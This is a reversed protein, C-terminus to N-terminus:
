CQLKGDILPWQFQCRSALADDHTVIVLTARHERNLEFLLDIVALGTKKDLNGTPEDAFLVAPTIAFARAIAVRQQEGGSLQLPYHSQRNSLGVKAIWETAITRANKIHNIELPLMINELATLNPLLQFFQFIFGIRTARLQAREDESLLTIDKKDYFIQGSSPKELGAMLTLLSTKGSGSAGTIAITAGSNITLNINQLIHLWQDNIKISYNVDILKIIADPRAM